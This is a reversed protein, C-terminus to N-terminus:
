SECVRPLPDLCSERAVQTGAKQPHQSAGLSSEEGDHAAKILNSIDPSHPGTTCVMSPKAEEGLGQSSFGAGGRTHTHGPHYLHKYAHTHIQARAPEPSFFPSPAGGDEGEEQASGRAPEVASTM